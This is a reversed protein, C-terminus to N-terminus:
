AAFHRQMLLQWSPLDTLFSFVFPADAETERNLEQRIWFSAVQAAVPNISAIHVISTEGALSAPCGLTACVNRLKPCHDYLSSAKGPLPGFSWCHVRDNMCSRLLKQMRGIEGEVTLSHKAAQNEAVFTLFDTPPKASVLASQYDLLLPKAEAETIYGGERLHNMSTQGIRELARVLISRDTQAPLSLGTLSETM